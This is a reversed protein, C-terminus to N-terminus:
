AALPSASASDPRLALRWLRAARAVFVGSFAGYLLTFFAAFLPEHALGPQMATAAGVFYKIAFIGLILALPVGSGPLSFRRTAADYHTNDALAGQMLLAAAAGAALLWLLLTQPQAGFASLTGTLSLGVMALPLLTIRRLSASRQRTQSLGLALLALLLLWVWRPTHSLIQNLM